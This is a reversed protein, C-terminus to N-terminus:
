ELIKKNKETINRAIEFTCSIFDTICDLTLSYYIYNGKKEDKVIHYDKLIKLHKSVSSIKVDFLKTLESVSTPGNKKLYNIIIIRIPHALVKIIEAQLKAVEYSYKKDFSM